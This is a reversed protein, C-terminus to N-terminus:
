EIDMKASDYNEKGDGEGVGEGDEEGEGDGEGDEEEDGEEDKIDKKKELLDIVTKKLKLGM